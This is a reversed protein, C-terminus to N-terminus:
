ETYAAIIEAFYVDHYGGHGEGYWKNVQEDLMEESVFNGKYLKKCELTLRAEKFTVSGNETAIPTLCTEKAKDYDRGSKTGCFNYAKRAAQSYGLFSLTFTDNQEVFAHTYREPRVFAIAVPKHWLWGMCGWSATMMNFHDTTGATILMWETSVAEFFNDKLQKVDVKEM